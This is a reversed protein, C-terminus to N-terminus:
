RSSVPNLARAFGNLTGYGKSSFGLCGFLGERYPLFTRKRLEESQARNATYHLEHASRVPLKKKGGTVGSRGKSAGGGKKNASGNVRKIREAPDGTSAVPGNPKEKPGANNSQPQKDKGPSFSITAWFKNNSSGESKSRLFDKLFVWRKSSRGASSSRSSSASMSPVAESSLAGEKKEASGDKGEEKEGAFETGGPCGDDDKDNWDFPLNRLPSMSRTRRRLSKNKLTRFERGRRSFDGEGDGDDEDENALDVLPGLVQPRELHTSLKMPRIQGNLFLEDASIMAGAADHGPSGARSSFEFEFSANSGAGGLVLDDGVPHHSSSASSSLSFFHMPSAPASYFYGSPPFSLLPGRGPSSPASVYPTSCNSDVDDFPDSEAKSEPSM